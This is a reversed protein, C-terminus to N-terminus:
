SVYFRKSLSARRYHHLIYAHKPEDVETHKTVEGRM